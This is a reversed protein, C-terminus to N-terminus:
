RFELGPLSYILRCLVCLVRIHLPLPCPPMQSEGRGQRCRGLNCDAKKGFLTGFLTRPSMEPDMQASTRGFSHTGAQAVQLRTTKNNNNNKKKGSHLESWSACYLRISTLVLDSPLASCYGLNLCSHVCACTCVCLVWALVCLPDRQDSWFLHGPHSWYDCSSLMRPFAGWCM